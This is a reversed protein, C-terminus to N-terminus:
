SGIPLWSKDDLRALRSLSKRSLLKCAQKVTGGLMAAIDEISVYHCDPSSRLVPLGHLMVERVGIKIKPLPM